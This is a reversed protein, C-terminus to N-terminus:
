KIGGLYKEMARKQGEYGSCRCLNGKVYNDLDQPKIDTFEKEMGIITMILGPSCYGCQDAGENVIFQGIERAKEQVGELTTIKKNEARIALYSCSRIPKDDLLVTCVGCSGTDCGKKVSKYGLDRLLDLLFKDPDIHVIKKSNNIILNLKM